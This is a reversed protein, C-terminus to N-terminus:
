KGDNEEKMCHTCGVIENEWVQEEPKILARCNGCTMKGVMRAMSDVIVQIKLTAECLSESISDYFEGEAM